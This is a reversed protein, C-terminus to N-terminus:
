PANTISSPFMTANSPISHRVGAFPDVGLLAETEEAVAEATRDSYSCCLLASREAGNLLYRLCVSCPQFISSNHLQEFGLIDGFPIETKGAFLSPRLRMVGEAPYLTITSVGFVTHVAYAVLLISIGFNGMPFPMILLVAILAPFLPSKKRAWRSFADGDQRYRRPSDIGRLCDQGAREKAEAVALRLAPLVTKEVFALEADGAPLPRTLQWGRGFRKGKRTLKYLRREGEGSGMRVRVFEAIETFPAPQKAGLMNAHRAEGGAGDFVTRRSWNSFDRLFTVFMDPLALTQFLVIGNGVLDHFSPMSFALIAGLLLFSALMAGHGVNAIMTLRDGDIVINKFPSAGDRNEPM